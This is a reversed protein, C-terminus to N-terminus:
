EACTVPASNVIVDDLWVDIAPQTANVNGSAFGIGLWLDHLPKGSDDTITGPLSLTGLDGALDLQGSTASRVVHFVACVWTNTPPPSPTMTIMGDFQSYIRADTALAFLYDGLGGGNQEISILEMRNTPAPLAPLFFWARVWLDASLTALTQSEGIQAYGSSNAPIQPVHVHISQTGRHARTTDLSVGVGATWAPAISPAEFSDCMAFGTCAAAEDFADATLPSDIPADGRPADSGAASGAADGRTDFAFRGCGVLACVVWAWRV